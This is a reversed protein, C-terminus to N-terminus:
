SLGGAATLSFGSLFSPKAGQTARGGSEMDAGRGALGPTLVLFVMGAEEKAGYDSDRPSRAQSCQKVTGMPRIAETAM